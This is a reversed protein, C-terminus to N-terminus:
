TAPCARDNRLKGAVVLRIAVWFRPAYVKENRQFPQGPLHVLNWILKKLWPFAKSIRAYDKYSSHPNTWQAEADLIM